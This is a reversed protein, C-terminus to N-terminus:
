FLPNDSGTTGWLSVLFRMVETEDPNEATMVDAWFQDITQCYTAPDPPEAVDPGSNVIEPPAGAGVQFLSPTNGQLICDSLHADSQDLYLGGGCGAANNEIRDAIFVPGAHDCYSAGGRVASNNSIVSAVIKPNGQRCYLGAGGVATNGTITCDILVPSAADLYMGAGRMAFNDIVACRRITPSSAAKCLIGGGNVANGHTVVIDMLMCRASERGRFTVVPGADEGDIVTGEVGQADADGAGILLIDKGLFDIKERYTGPGIIIATENPAVEIAEQICDFPHQWTGNESPDSVSANGPAPDAPADDDVYLINLVTTFNARVDYDGEVIVTTNASCPDSVKGASVATGTWGAFVYFEGTKAALAVSQGYNVQQAGPGPTVTGGATSSVTLTRRSGTCWGSDPLSFDTEGLGQDDGAAKVWYVYVTEPAATTDEFSTQTQWGSVAAKEGTETLARYVRYHTTYASGSGVQGWTVVVKGPVTGDSAKVDQPPRSNPSYEIAIGPNNQQIAILHTSYAEADLLTGKLHLHQLRRLSLLPSIDSVPNNTLDLTTLSTMGAVPGIDTIRNGQLTLAELGTLGALSSIDTLGNAPLDLVRLNTLGSLPSLDVIKNGGLLLTDLNKMRSLVSIDVIQNNALTLETLGTLRWLASVNSIKNDHLELKTLKTLGAIPTVDLVYNRCLILETLNTLDGLSTIDSIQNGKLNLTTLKTLGALPSIDAIRNDEFSLNTLNLAYEMGTLNGISKGRAEFRTLALMQSQAPRQVSIAREVGRQLNQDVFRVAEDAACVSLLSFLCLISAYRSMNM